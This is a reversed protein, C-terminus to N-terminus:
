IGGRGDVVGYGIVSTMGQRSGIELVDFADSPGHWGFFLDWTKDYEELGKSQLPPPVDFMVIDPHHDALIGTRDHNRVAAAWRQILARIDAEDQSRIPTGGSM